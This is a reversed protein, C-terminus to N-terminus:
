KSQAMDCWASPGTKKAGSRLQVVGMKIRDPRSGIHDERAGRACGGKWRMTHVRRVQLTRMKAM